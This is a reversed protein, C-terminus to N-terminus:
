REYRSPNPYLQKIAVEFNDPTPLLIPNGISFCKKGAIYDLIQYPLMETNLKCDYEPVPECNFTNAYLSKMVFGTDYRDWPYMTRLERVRSKEYIIPIHGDFNLTPKDNFVLENYTALLARHYKGATVRQLTTELPCKYYYPFLEANSNELLFHDDNMFLFRESMETFMECAMLIKVFINKEKFPTADEHPIHIVNQIWDPKRGIIYVNGYNKLHKEVSRLSYRLENNNWFSGGGLPYFIDIM